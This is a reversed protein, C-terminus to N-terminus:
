PATEKKDRRVIRSETGQRLRAINARHKYIIVTPILAACALLPGLRGFVPWGAAFGILMYAPLFAAAAIM